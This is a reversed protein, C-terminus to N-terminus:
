FGGAAQNPIKSSGPSRVLTRAAGGAAVFRGSGSGRTFRRFRRFRRFGRFGRFWVKFGRFRIFGRFRSLIGLNMSVLTSVAAAM